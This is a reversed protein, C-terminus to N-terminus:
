RRLPESTSSSGPRPSSCRTPRGTGAACWGREPGCRLPGALRCSRCRDQHRGLLDRRQTARYAAMANSRSIGALAAVCSILPLNPNGGAIPDAVVIRYAADGSKRPERVIVRRKNRLGSLFARVSHPQWDTAAILEVPTAGKARLLLKIVTDSKSSAPTPAATSAQSARRRAPKAITTAADPGTTSTTM